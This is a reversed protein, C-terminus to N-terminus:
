HKQTEMNRKGRKSGVDRKRQGRDGHTERDVCRQTEAETETETEAELTQRARPGLQIM